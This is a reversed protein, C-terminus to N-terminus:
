KAESIDRQAEIAALRELIQDLKVHLDNNLDHDVFLAALNATILGFLSIGLFM